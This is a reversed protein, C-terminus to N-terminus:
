FILRLIYRGACLRINRILTKWGDVKRGVNLTRGAESILDGMGKYVSPGNEWLKKRGCMLVGCGTFYSVYYVAGYSNLRRQKWGQNKEKKQVKRNM